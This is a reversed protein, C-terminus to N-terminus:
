GESPREPMICGLVSLDDAFQGETKLTGMKYQSFDYVSRAQQYLDYDHTLPTGEDSGKNWDSQILSIANCGLQIAAQSAAAPLAARNMRM